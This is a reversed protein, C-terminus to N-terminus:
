TLPAKKQAHTGRAPKWELQWLAWVACMVVAAGVQYGEAPTAQMVFIALLGLACGTLYLAFVAERQSFGRRVLRHSFHDKGSTTLPNVGRRVRSVIVLATDFIPVGMVLVPVM